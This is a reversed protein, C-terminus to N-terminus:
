IKSKSYTSCFLAFKVKIELNNSFFLLLSKGSQTKFSVISFYKSVLIVKVEPSKSVIAQSRIIIYHLTFAKIHNALYNQTWFQIKANFNRVSGVM